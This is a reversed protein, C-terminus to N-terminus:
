TSYQCPPNRTKARSLSPFGISRFRATSRHIPPYSEILSSVASLYRRQSFDCKGRCAHDFIQISLSAYRQFGLQRPIQFKQPFITAYPLIEPNVGTVVRSARTELSRNTSKPPISPRCCLPSVQPVPLERNLTARSVQNARYRERSSRHM